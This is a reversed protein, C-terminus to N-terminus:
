HFNVNLSIGGTINVDSKVPAQYGHMANLEKVASVIETGKDTSQIVGMLAQVSMERTWLAKAELKSKLEDVRVTVKGNAMLQSAKVNVVDPKMGDANYAKRYADSQNLGDAIAQAFAEQKSTLAM